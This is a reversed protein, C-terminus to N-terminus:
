RPILGSTGRAGFSSNQHRHSIQPHRTSDIEADLDLPRITWTGISVRTRSTRTPSYLRTGHIFDPLDHRRFSLSFWFASSEWYKKRTLEPNERYPSTRRPQELLVFMDVDLRITWVDSLVASMVGDRFSSPLKGRYMVSRRVHVLSIDAHYLFIMM